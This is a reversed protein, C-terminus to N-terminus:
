SRRATAFARAMMRFSHHAPGINEIVSADVVQVASRGHNIGAGALADLDVSHHLHIGPIFLHTKGSPVLNRFPQSSRAADCAAQIAENRPVLPQRADDALLYADPVHVQAYASYRGARAPIGFRNYLAEVLLGPSMRRLIKSIASGTPLGFAARQEIGLDLTRFNFMAPRLSYLATAAPSYRAPLYMGGRVHTAPVPGEGDTHGLYCFAHDSVTGRSIGTALSRELLPPTGLAGAAIWLRRCRFSGQDSMVHVETGKHEFRDVTGPKLITNGNRQAVLRGLVALPRIPRWPVFLSPERAHSRVNARPYFAEFLEFFLGSDVGTWGPVDPGVPIVGHWDNGLGGLGHFECPVTRDAAYHRHAGTQPGGLVLVRRSPDLGLATGAAALGSGIIIDDFFNSPITM